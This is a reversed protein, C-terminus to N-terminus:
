AQEDEIRIMRKPKPKMPVSPVYTDRCRKIYPSPLVGNRERYYINPKFDSLVENAEMLRQALHQCLLNHQKAHENLHKRYHDINHLDFPPGYPGYPMTTVWPLGIRECEICRIVIENSLPNEHMRFTVGNVYPIETLLRIGLPDIVSM